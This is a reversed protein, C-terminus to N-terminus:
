EALLGREYALRVAEARNQAGLKAIVNAAHFNATKVSTGLQGAIEKDPLGRALLELVERERTTLREHHSLGEALKGAVIPTLLTGGASVVRVVSALDEPSADKLLYGRAGARMAQFVLEDQAFTTVAVAKTPVGMKGLRAIAEVGSLKPMRLDIMLVDPRLTEVLALAEEGNAATAVVEIDAQQSLIGAIGSRTAPHDDAVVVRIRKAPRSAAPLGPVSPRAPLDYPVTALVRTGPLRAPDSEVAVAGGVRRLRDAMGVLGFGGEPRPGRGSSMGPDFGIGDDAISLKVIAPGYDLVVEARSARAHKRANTLAEQATRFLALQIEAPLPRAAGSVVLRGPLGGRESAALEGQLAEVLTGAELSAPGLNWVSRRAEELAGRAREEAELLEAVARDPSTGVLGRSARLQFTLALLSQALTDHIEAALRNREEAAGLERSAAYLRANEIAIAVHKALVTLLQVHREGFVRHPDKAGIGFTGLIQDQWWIPVAIWPALEYFASHPLPSTLQDYREVIVPGRAVLVQGMLGSRAPLEDTHLRAPLNYTATLRRPADLDEGILSIAGAHAGLLRVASAVVTELLTKLDLQAAISETIEQLVGLQQVAEALEANRVALRRASDAKIRAAEDREIHSAVLRALVVMLDIEHEGLDMARRDHACLTGFLRSDNLLIPVGIYTKTGVLQKGPLNRYPEADADLVVLPMLTSLVTDCFTSTRPVTVPPRIGLGMRDHVHSVVISDGELRHIMSLRVGIWDSILRLTADIVDDLSDFPRAALAALPSLAPGGSGGNRQGTGGEPLIEVM